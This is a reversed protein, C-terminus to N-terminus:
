GGFNHPKTFYMVKRDHMCHPLNQLTPFSNRASSTTVNLHLRPVLHVSLGHSFLMSFIGDKIRSTVSM